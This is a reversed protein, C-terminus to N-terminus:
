WLILRVILIFIITHILLGLLNPGGHSLSISSFSKTFSSSLAYAAPSSIIAFILGLLIAACWKQTNTRSNPGTDPKPDTGLLSTDMLADRVMKIHEYFKM